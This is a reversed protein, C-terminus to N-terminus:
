PLNPHALLKMLYKPSEEYGQRDYFRHADVRRSHCHLEIRDCGRERAMAEVQAVLAAGVGRSRAGDGVCLYSIRCFDGALALQPVFHLSVVGLVQDGDVAVLLRADPHSCLLAIKAPVLNETGPYGLSTLLASIASADDVCADRVQVGPGLVYTMFRSFPDPAYDAFPGCDVFGHRAYLRHAAAFGETTGTELSLRQLGWQRAQALAHRLLLTAAGRGRAKRATRMSKLEGHLADLRKIAGCALLEDGEWVTWFTIGPQRLRDLDLAHVSEPPSWARMDELHEELLEAVQPRRLDDIEIHM